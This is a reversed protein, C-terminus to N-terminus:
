KGPKLKSETPVYQDFKERAKLIDLNRKGNNIKLLGHLKRFRAYLVGNNLEKSIIGKAGVDIKDSAAFAYPIVLIQDKMRLNVKGDVDDITMAKGLWGEKGKRNAMMTVFPRSDTMKLDAEIDLQVPKKWVARAKNLSLLIGWNDDNFDKEDGSVKVNNIEITSGAIDFDMNQPVGGVLKIDISMDAELAQKDAVAHMGTSVLKVFGGASDPKLSVDVKLEAQGDVIQVPSDPPLYSNYVSLDKVQASPIQLHLDVDRGKGDFSVNRALAQLMIDTDEVFAQEDGKSKFSANKMEIDLSIDPTEGGKEVALRLHGVGSGTAVYDLVEVILKQPNINFETGPAMWGSDIVVDASIDGAGRIDLNFRNKMLVKLWRLDSVVGHVKLKESDSDLMPLIEKGKIGALLEGLEAEKSVGEPLILKVRGKEVDISAAWPESSGAENNSLRANDLHIYTGAVDIGSESLRPADINLNMDLDTSFQFDKLSVDAAKSSLRSFGTFGFKTLEAKGKLEGEGGLLKFSWGDPLFRQYLALDPVKISPINVALKSAIPEEGGAPLLQTRGRGSFSLGTGSVLVGDSSGHLGELEGFKIEFAMVDPEAESVVLGIEGEGQARYDLMDVSLESATILVNNGAKLEGKDYNLHGDINGRGAVDMGHFGALYFNLFALSETETRIDADLTLFELVKLGKNEKPVFPAFALKGKLHGDRVVERDGNIFISDLDIDLEGNELSFPGGRTQFNIDAELEGKLKAQLQFIWVSHNGSAHIGDVSIDWAKGKKKAVVPAPETELQRNKIPAFYPQIKSYDKGERPRPRLHFVVDRAEAGSLSVTKWILPILSISASAEPADVQWQQGRSQGNASVGTAHVRFPYWSWAKIWSVAFKDPKIQNILTQTVPLSLALNILGLYFIEFLVLVIITKRLWPKLPTM